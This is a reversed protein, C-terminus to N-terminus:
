KGAHADTRGVLTKRAPVANAIVRGNRISHLVVCQTRVADYASEADLIVLSAPKGAEIGYRESVGMTRAGNVTILDLSRDIEGRGTLQAIHLGHFLVNLINGNGLPYWPDIISDQAFCVNLGAALLEKVRTLGRRKPYTDLRGQLHISETPCSVFNIASKRLTGMLKYAYADNYSGMACTHSATVRAGNGIRIAEAAVVELFRSQEDDIEDCHIDVRLGRREALDMVFRVSEVGQDRMFEGHPIAGLVDAGMDAARRMLGEGDPFSLIGDQPFAVIQMECLDKVRERVVLMAELATLAPDTVDVHTRIFQIGHRACTEVTEVARTVVDDVTLTEKRRAWLQIGEFLTGSDNWAPDGATLTADLHIHPEVFPPVALKGGADITEGAADPLAPGIKAFKGDRILIDQLKEEGAIRCNTIKM